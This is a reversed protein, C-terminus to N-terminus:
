AREPQEEAARGASIALRGCRNRGMTQRGFAVVMFASRVVQIAVYAVAFSVGRSGFASPIAAPMFLSIAMLVLMMLAVGPLEPDIWNTM